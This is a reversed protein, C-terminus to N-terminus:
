TTPLIVRLRLPPNQAAPHLTPCGALDRQSPRGGGHPSYPARKGRCWRQGWFGGRRVPGTPCCHSYDSGASHPRGQRCPTVGKFRAYGRGPATKVWSIAAGLNLADGHQNAWGAALLTSRSPGPIPNQCPCDKEAGQAAFSTCLSTSITYAVGGYPRPCYPWVMAHCPTRTSQAKKSRSAADVSPCRILPDDITRGSIREMYTSAM